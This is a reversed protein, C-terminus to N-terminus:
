LHEDPTKLFVQSLFHRQRMGLCKERSNANRFIQFQCDAKGM